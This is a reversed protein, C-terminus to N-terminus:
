IEFQSVVPLGINSANILGTAGNTDLFAGPVASGAIEFFTGPDGTGNSFGARASSGGVGGTGGSADGTEWQIQAYNFEFDFDEPNRDDRNIIVLQFTNLRDTNSAYYGVQPWNVLFAPRGSVTGNGYNVLGSGAGRTDVDAFYPAIIPIATSTLDFPTFTGLPATLTVNGNNNVWLQNTSLGFYNITFGIGVPGVSQDDNAPFVTPAYDGPMRIVQALAVSSQLAPFLICLHVLFRIVGRM